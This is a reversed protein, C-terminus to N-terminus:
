SKYIALEITLTRGDCNSDIHRAYINTSCNLPYAKRLANEVAEDSDATGLKALDLHYKKMHANSRPM